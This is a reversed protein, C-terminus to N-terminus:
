LGEAIFQTPQAITRRLGSDTRFLVRAVDYADIAEVRDPHQRMLKNIQSALNVIRKERASLGEKQGSQM